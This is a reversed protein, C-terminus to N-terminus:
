IFGKILLLRKEALEKWSSWDYQTVIQSYEREALSYKDQKEYLQGLNFKALPAMFSDEYEDVIQRYAAEALDYEEKQEYSSAEGQLCLIAILSKSKISYGKRFYEVAEDYRGAEYLISGIFYASESAAYTNPYAEIIKQFGENLGLLKENVTEDEPEGNEIIDKYSLYVKGFASYASKERRDILYDISFYSALGVVAVASCIILVTLNESIFKEIRKTTKSFLDEPEHKKVAKAM